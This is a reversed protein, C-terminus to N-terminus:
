ESTIEANYTSDVVIETIPKKAVSGSYVLKDAKLFAYCSSLFLCCSISFIIVKMIYFFKLIHLM